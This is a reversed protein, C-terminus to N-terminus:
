KKSCSLGFSNQENSANSDNPYLYIMGMKDDIMLRINNAPRFYSMIANTTDMPHDLGLCHGLEHTFTAIFSKLNTKYDSKIRIKCGVIHNSETKHSADGGSVPGSPDTFCVDVTRINGKAITFTSDGSNPTGPNNPDDPYKAIRIYSNQINNYDDSVSQLVQTFTPASNSILADDSNPINNSTWTHNKMDDCAKIWITPDNKDIQWTNSSLLAFGSSVFVFIIILVIKHIKNKM